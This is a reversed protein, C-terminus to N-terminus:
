QKNFDTQRKPVDPPFKPNIVVIDIVNTANIMMTGKVTTQEIAVHIKALSLAFNLLCNSAFHVM